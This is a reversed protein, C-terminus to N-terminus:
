AIRVDRGGRAARDDSRSGADELPRNAPALGAVTGRFWKSRTRRRGAVRRGLEAVGARRVLRAGRRQRRHGRPVVGELSRHCSAAGRHRWEGTVEEDLEAPVAALFRARQGNLETRDGVFDDARSPDHHRAIRRRASGQPPNPLHRRGGVVDDVEVAGRGRSRRFQDGVLQGVDGM